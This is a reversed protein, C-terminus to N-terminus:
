QVFEKEDLEKGLVKETTNERNTESEACDPPKENLVKESSEEPKTLEEAPSCNRDTSASKKESLMMAPVVNEATPHSSAAAKQTTPRLKPRRQQGRGRSPSARSGPVDSFVVLSELVCDAAPLTCLCSLM